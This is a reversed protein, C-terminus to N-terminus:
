RFERWARLLAVQTWHKPPNESTNLFTTTFETELYWPQSAARTNDTTRAPNNTYEKVRGNKLKKTSLTAEDSSSSILDIIQKKKGRERKTSGAM